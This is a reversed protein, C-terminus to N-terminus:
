INQPARTIIKQQKDTIFWDEVYDEMWTRTDILSGLEDKFTEQLWIYHSNYCSTRVILNIFISLSCVTRGSRFLSVSHEQSFKYGLVLELSGFQDSM